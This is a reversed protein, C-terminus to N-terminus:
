ASVRCDHSSNRDRLVAIGREELEDRIIDLKQRRDIWPSIASRLRSKIERRAGTCSLLPVCSAEKTTQHGYQCLYEAFNVACEEAERLTGCPADEAYIANHGSLKIHFFELEDHERPDYITITTGNVLSGATVLVGDILLEHERTVYLDARPVDPGLASRAVRVPLMRKVWAKAPDNKRLSYRGIWQIPCIGEFVTPLLDGVALDEIKRDGDATRVMTGKLFCQQECGEGVNKDNGCNAASSNMKSLNAVIASAGIVGAKILNRRSRRIGTPAKELPSMINADGFTHAQVHEVAQLTSSVTQRLFINFLVFFHNVFVSIQATTLKSVVL